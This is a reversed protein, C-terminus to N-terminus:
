GESADVRSAAILKRIGLMSLAVGVGEAFLFPRGESVAGVCLGIFLLVGFAQIFWEPMTTTGNGARVDRLTRVLMWASAFSLLGFIALCGCVAAVPMGKPGVIVAGVVLTLCLVSIFMGGMLLATAFRRTPTGVEAVYDLRSKQM